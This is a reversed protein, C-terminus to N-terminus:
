QENNALEELWDAIRERRWKRRDNLKYIAAELYLNQGFAPDSVRLNDLTPLGCQSFINDDNEIQTTGTAAEYVAGVACSCTGSSTARFHEKTTQPRMNAGERMLAAARRLDTKQEETLIVAEM